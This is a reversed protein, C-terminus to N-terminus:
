APLMGPPPRPTRGHLYPALACGLIACWRETATLQPATARLRTLFAAVAEFGARIRVGQGHLTTVSLTTRGAHRTARAVGDMLMPRSTIAERPTDPDVLRAFLTWWDYVLATLRATIRTRKLDQTTFGGWGWHNKLDDFINEADARDRYLQALTLPEADVATVLVTYEWLRKGPALLEVFGLQAPGDSDTEHVALARDDRLPRRMVLVTRARSWGHLTLAAEAAQWGHGADRWGRQGALREILKRVNATVRLKFLYDQNRAELAAMVPETGYDADGRVLEPREEPRMGDLLRLLGDLGHTSRHQNGPAVEVDLVLRTGAMAYTHYVHSPRGPKHPNFGVEAGEQRGYIPKITADVDLIWPEQLLPRVVYDLHRRLWDTAATEGLAALARRVSDDGCVKTMGLLAPNVGDHRLASVHAYRKAGTLISLVLTGLVDRKSPANPSTYHLPCDAVLPDFLGAQKLYDIFFPLQGLPTVAEDPAWRVHVTGAFTDM